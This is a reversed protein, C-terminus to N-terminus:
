LHRGVTVTLFSVTWIETLNRTTQQQRKSVRGPPDLEFSSHKLMGKACCSIGDAPVLHHMAHSVPLWWAILQERLSSFYFLLRGQRKIPYARWPFLDAPHQFHRCQWLTFIGPGPVCVYPVKFLISKLWEAQVRGCATSTTRGTLQNCLTVSHLNKYQGSNVLCFM